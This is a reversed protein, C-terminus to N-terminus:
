APPALRHRLRLAPKEVLLHGAYAVALSAARDVAATEPVGAVSVIALVRLGHLAPYRDGLLDLALLRRLMENALAM